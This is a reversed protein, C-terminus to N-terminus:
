LFNEGSPVEPNDQQDTAGAKLGAAFGVAMGIIGFLALVELPM